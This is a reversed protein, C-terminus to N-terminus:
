LKELEKQYAKSAKIEDDFYGLYKLKGKIRISSMWKKARKNWSVGVFKSSGNIKDKSTNERVTIIQLNDVHNNLPNNDKHDIIKSFGKSEHNLFEKAVLKHVQHTKYEGKLSLNVVYYGRGDINQKLIKDELVKKRQLSKVSGFNSIQYHKEFGTINKWIEM